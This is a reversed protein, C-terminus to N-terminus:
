KAESMIMDCLDLAEAIAGAFEYEGLTRLLTTFTTAYGPHEFVMARYVVPTADYLFVCVQPRKATNIAFSDGTDRLSGPKIPMVRHVAVEFVLLGNRTAAAIDREHNIFHDFQDAHIGQCWSVPCSAAEKPLTCREWILGTTDPIIPREAVLTGGLGETM